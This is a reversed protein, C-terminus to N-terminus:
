IHLPSKISGTATNGVCIRSVYLPGVFTKSAHTDSATFALSRRKAYRSGEISPNCHPVRLVNKKGSQHKALGLKGGSGHRKVDTVVILGKLYQNQLDHQGMHNFQM